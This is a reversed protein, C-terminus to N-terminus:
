KGTGACGPAATGRESVVIRHVPREPGAHRNARTATEVVATPPTRAMDPIAPVPAGEPVAAAAANRSASADAAQLKASPATVHRASPTSAATRSAPSLQHFPSTEHTAAALAIAQVTAAPRGSRM